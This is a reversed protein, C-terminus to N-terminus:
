DEPENQLQWRAMEVEQRFDPTTLGAPKATSANDQYPYVGRM